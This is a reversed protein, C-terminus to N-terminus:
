RREGMWHAQRYAVERRVELADQWRRWAAITAIVLHPPPELTFYGCLRDLAAQYEAELVEGTVKTVRFASSEAM